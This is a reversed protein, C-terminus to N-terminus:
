WHILGGRMTIVNMVLSSGAGRSLAKAGEKRASGAGGRKEHREHRGGKGGKGQMGKRARDHNRAWQAMLRKLARTEQHIKQGEGRRRGVPM